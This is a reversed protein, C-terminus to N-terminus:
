ALRHARDDNGRRWLKLAVLAAATAPLALEIIPVPEPHKHGILSLDLEKPAYGLAPTGVTCRPLPPGVASVRM